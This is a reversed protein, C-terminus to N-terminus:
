KARLATMAPKDTGDHNRLGISGPYRRFCAVDTRHCAALDDTSDPPLDTLFTISLHHFAPRLATERLHTTIFAAQTAPGPDTGCGNSPFGAEMLYVPKGPAHTVMLDLNPAIDSLTRTHFDGTLPYYTLMLANGASILPHLSDPTQALGAFTLKTGFALGPLRAAIHSRAATLFRAFAAIDQPTTLTADVENGVSIARLTLDPMKDLVRDAYALFRAIVRPDDWPLAKLDAPRRDAVTDIVSFTLTLDLPVGPYYSNAIAPWDPSTIATGDATEGEDWMLSLSTATGGIQLVQAVAHDFTEGDAQTIDLSLQPQAAAPFALLALLATRIM